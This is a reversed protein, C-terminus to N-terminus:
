GNATARDIGERAVTVAHRLEDTTIVYPPMFYITNGLPRLLCGRTTGL